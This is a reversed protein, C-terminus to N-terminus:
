YTKVFIHLNYQYPCGFFNRTTWYDKSTQRFYDKCFDKNREDESV